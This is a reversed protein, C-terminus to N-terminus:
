ELLYDLQQILNRKEFLEDIEDQETTELSNFYEKITTHDLEELISALIQLFEPTYEKPVKLYKIITKFALKPEKILAARGADINLDTPRDTMIDLIETFGEQDYNGLGSIAYYSLTEDQSRAQEKLVQFIKESEVQSSLDIIAVKKDSALNPDNLMDLLPMELYHKLRLLGNKSINILKNDKSNLYIELFKPVLDPNDYRVLSALAYQKTIGTSYLKWKAQFNPDDIHDSVKNVIDNEVTILNHTQLSNLLEDFEADIKSQALEMESEDKIKSSFYKIFDNKMENVDKEEAAEFIYLTKKTINPIEVIELLFPIAPDYKVLGLLNVYSLLSRDTTEKARKYVNPAKEEWHAKFAKELHCKPLDSQINFPEEFEIQCTFGSYSAKLFPCSPKNKRLYLGDLEQQAKKYSLASGFNSFVRFLSYIGYIVALLGILLYIFNGGSLLFEGVVILLIDIILNILLNLVDKNFTTASELTTEDILDINEEIM